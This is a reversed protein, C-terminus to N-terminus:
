KVECGNPGSCAQASMTSVDIEFSDEYALSWDVDVYTRKLDCWYKWLSVYKLLRSCRKEDGDCYNEAFKKFRRVWDQKEALLDVKQKIVKIDLTLVSPDLQLKEGIGLASDCAAWLNNNFVKLGDVVLGSAFLSGEGFENLIERHDLIQTFPAQPYDLDGSAPLLSIGAFHKRNDFIFAEVDSWENEKVVITNSVNHRLWPKVCLDVNTGAEVWNNQTVKVDDLLELASVANKLKSGEPVECLFSLVVDTKNASWVSEEVALENHAQFYQAPYENKNAQVRRIYRKAHHPHIGSSTGLLCSTSGAPKICTTRAAPNIGIKLAIEKNVQKVIEAGAVQISADLIINPNEQIGTISVGLLAERKIISESVPGLYSFSAYSAQITGIIAAAKCAVYLDEASKVKKGNIECLNCVQFGSNGNDDYGYMAIECCPNFLVRDSEAWVFGPEGYDKVSKMLEAFQERTTSDRVLIASNNSRGRQPNTIFWSGTKAQAMEQDNPSFLTICASRRVGGSIVADSAHMLIDYAHIPRLKNGQQLASDFITTIKELANKLGVPGPAKGGWSLPAGAPRVQTYDFVVQKGYYEPFLGSDKFYSACLVGLADAWGEITDPVTFTLSENGRQTIEPLKEIDKFQVSFGVGTGCLLMYLTEQFARPRDIYHASCNFIRANKDLIPQGGFQLARQSGLVKKKMVADKAFEFEEKILEFKDGLKIKHMDFVRNVQEEWTERRKKNKDYKAYKAYRTYEQLMKISM